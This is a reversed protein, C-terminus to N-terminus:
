HAVRLFGFAVPSFKLQRANQRVQKPEPHATLQTGTTCVVGAVKVPQGVAGCLCLIVTVDKSGDVLPEFVKILLLAVRTVGM